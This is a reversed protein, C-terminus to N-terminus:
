RPRTRLCYFRAKARERGVEVEVEVETVTDILVVAAVPSEAVPGNLGM